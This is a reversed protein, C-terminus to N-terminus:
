NRQPVRRHLNPDIGVGTRHHDLFNQEPGCFAAPKFQGQYGVMCELYRRGGIDTRNLHGTPKIHRVIFNDTAALRSVQHDGVVNRQRSLHQFLAPQRQRRTALTEGGFVDTGPKIDAIEHFCQACATHM